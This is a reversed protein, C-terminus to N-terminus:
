EDRSGADLGRLLWKRGLHPRHEFAQVVLAAVGLAITAGVLLRLELPSAGRGEPFVWALRLGVLLAIAGILRSFEGNDWALRWRWRGEELGEARRWRPRFRPVRERYAEYAAGCREALTKEEYRKVRRVTVWWYVAGYVAAGIPAAAALGYGMDTIFSAWAVPNRVHGYPGSSTPVLDDPGRLVNIKRLHGYAWLQLARGCLAVGVGAGFLWPPPPWLWLVHLFIVLLYIRRLTSRLRLRMMRM